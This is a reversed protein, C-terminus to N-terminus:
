LIADTNLLISNTSSLTHYLSFHLSSRSEYELWVNRPHNFWSYNSPCPMHCTHPLSYTYLINREPLRLSSSWKSFRPTSPLIINFHLTLFDNPLSHRPDPKPYPFTTPKQSTPTQSKTAMFCSLKKFLQPAILKWQSHQLYNSNNIFRKTNDKFSKTSAYGSSSKSKWQTPCNLRNTQLALM